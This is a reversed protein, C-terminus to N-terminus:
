DIHDKECVLVDGVIFDTTDMYSRMLETARDNIPLGNIKGLENVVMVRTSSLWVIEIYGGVISQMVELTYTNAEPSAIIQKGNTKIIFDMTM